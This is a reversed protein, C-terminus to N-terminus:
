VSVPSTYLWAQHLVLTIGYWAQLQIRAHKNVHIGVYMAPEIAKSTHTHTHTHTTLLSLTVVDLSVYAHM